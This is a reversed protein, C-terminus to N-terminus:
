RCKGRTVSHFYFFFCIVLLIDHYTAYGYRHWSYDFGELLKYTTLASLENWDDVGEHEVILLRVLEMFNDMFDQDELLSPYKM